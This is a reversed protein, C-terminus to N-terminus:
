STPTVKVAAAHDTNGELRYEYVRSVLFVDYDLGILPQGPQGRRGEDGRSGAGDLRLLRLVSGLQNLPPLAM